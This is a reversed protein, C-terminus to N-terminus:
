QGPNQVDPLVAKYQGNTDSVASGLFVSHGQSDVAFFSLTVGTVNMTSGGPSAGSVRGVVNLPASLSAGPLQQEVGPTDNLLEVGIVARPLGTSAPPVIDIRYSGPDGAIHFMGNSDTQTTTASRTTLLADPARTATVQYGPGAPDGRSTLVTMSRLVKPPCALTLIPGPAAASQVGSVAAPDAPAPAAEISYSGSLVALSFTGDPRTTDSRSLTWPQTADGRAYVAAGSIPTGRQDVVVGSLTGQPPLPVRLPQGAAPVSLPAYTPVLPPAGPTGGDPAPGVQVLYAPPSPPLVLTFGGDPQALATASVQVGAASDIATLSAGPVPGGDLSTLGLAVNQLPAPLHIDLNPNATDFVTRYPPLPPPPVVLVNWAGRPLTISFNGAADTLAEARQAQDAVIAARDTFTLSAGAVPAPGRVPDDQKVSGSGSYPPQLTFEYLATTRLDIQHQESALGSGNPPQLSVLVQSLNAAAPRCEGLFCVDRGCQRSTSCPAGANGTTRPERLACGAVAAAMLLARSM